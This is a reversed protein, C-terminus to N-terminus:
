KKGITINFKFNRRVFVVMFALVIVGIIIQSWPSTKVFFSTVKYYIAQFVNSPAVSFYLKAAAAVGIRASGSATQVSKDIPHGELFAFYDGPVAKIPLDVRIEVTRARGPELDFIKPEFHFWERPPWMEKQDVHYTVEVEYSAPEDGTNIVSLPPLQYTKGAKLPENLIFKGNGVGVGIRALTLDPVLLVFLTLLYLLKKMYVLM